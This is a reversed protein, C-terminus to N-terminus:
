CNRSLCGRTRTIIAPPPNGHRSMDRRHPAPRLPTFPACDPKTFSIGRIQRRRRLCQGLKGTLFNASFTDLAYKFSTILTLVIRPEVGTRMSAPSGPQTRRPRQKQFSQSIRLSGVEWRTTRSRQVSNWKSTSLPGQLCQSLGPALQTPSASLMGSGVRTRCTGLVRM